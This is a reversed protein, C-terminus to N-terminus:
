LPKYWLQQFIIFSFFIETNLKYLSWYILFRGNERFEKLLHIAIHFLYFGLKLFRIKECYEFISILFKVRFHFLFFISLTSFIM